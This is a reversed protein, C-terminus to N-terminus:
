KKGGCTNPNKKEYDEPKVIWADLKKGVWMGLLFIILGTLIRM